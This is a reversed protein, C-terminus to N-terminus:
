PTRPDEAQAAPPRNMLRQDGAEVRYPNVPHGSSQESARFLRIERVSILPYRYGKGELTRVQQGKIEGAITVLLGPRFTRPDILDGSVALFRGESLSAEDPVGNLHLGRQEVELTMFDGESQIGAVVGGILVVRGVLSEPNKRIDSYAISTDASGLVVEGMVHACGGSIGALCFILWALYKM